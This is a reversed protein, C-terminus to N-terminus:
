SLHRAKLCVENQNALNEDALCLQMDGSSTTILLINSNTPESYRRNCRSTSFRFTHWRVFQIVRTSCNFASLRLQTAESARVKISQKLGFSCLSLKAVLLSFETVSSLKAGTTRRSNAIVNLDSELMGLLGLPTTDNDTPPNTSIKLNILKSIKTSELAIRIASVFDDPLAARNLEEM